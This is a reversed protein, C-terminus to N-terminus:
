FLCTCLDNKETSKIIFIYLLYQLNNTESSIQCHISLLLAPLLSKLHMLDDLVVHPNEKFLSILGDTLLGGGM